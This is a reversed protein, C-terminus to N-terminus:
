KFLKDLSRTVHEVIRKELLKSIPQNPIDMFQRQPMKTNVQRAHTKITGKAIKAAAVPKGKRTHAQRIHGKRTHEKITQTGTITLGENHVQAYPVDTFVSVKFGTNGVRTITYNLSRWLRGTGPGILINRRPGKPDKERAEWKKYNADIFGQRRFSDKYFNLAENACFKPLERMLDEISNIRSALDDTRRAPRVKAM